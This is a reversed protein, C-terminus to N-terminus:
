TPITGSRIIDGLVAGPGVSSVRDVDGVLMLDVKDPIAALLRNM